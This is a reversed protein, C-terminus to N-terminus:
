YLFWYAQAGVPIQKEKTEGAKLELVYQIPQDAQFTPCTQEAQSLCPQTNASISVVQRKANLFIMDLPMLTDKMWFSVVREDPFIFLMGQNSPMDMRGMLGRQWMPETTATEVWYWHWGNASIFVSHSVGYGILAVIVLLVLWRLLRM